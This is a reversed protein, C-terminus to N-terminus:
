AENVAYTEEIEFSLKRKDLPFVLTGSALMPTNSGDGFPCTFM